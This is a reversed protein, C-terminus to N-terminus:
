TAIRQLPKEFWLPTLVHLTWTQEGTAVRERVDLAQGHAVNVMHAHVDLRGVVHEGHEVDDALRRLRRVIAETNPDIM